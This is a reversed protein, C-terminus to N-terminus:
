SCYFKKILIPLDSKSPEGYKIKNLVEEPKLWFSEIFDNKNYNPTQNFKIEYAKIFSSVNDKKPNLYGLFYYSIEKLSINVEELLEREFAQEYTEGSSVHGGVSSDLALPFLKKNSSRRPIWIQGQDNILFAAVARVFNLDKSYIESRTKVDIVNDNEDVLDLLEDFKEIM